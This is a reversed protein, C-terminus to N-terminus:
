KLLKKQMFYSFIIIFLWSLILWIHWWITDSFYEVNLYILYMTLFLVWIMFICKQKTKTSFYFSLILVFAFIIEWIFEQVALSFFAWMIFIVWVINLLDWILQYKTNKFVYNLIVYITGILIYTYSSIYLLLIFNSLYAILSTYAITWFFVTLFIFFNSNNIYNNIFYILSVFWFLFFFFLNTDLLWWPFYNDILVLLWFPIFLAWILHVSMWLIKKDFSYLLLNWIVLALIWSWLTSIVQLLNSMDNWFSGVLFVIWLFIIFWWLLSAIEVFSMKKNWESSSQELISLIESKTILWNKYLNKLDDLVKIKDM